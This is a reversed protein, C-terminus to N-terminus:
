LDPSGLALWGSCLLDLKTINGNDDATVFIHQEARRSENRSPVFTEFRYVVREIPNLSEREVTDIKTVTEGEDFVDQLEALVQVRDNLEIMQSTTVGRYVVDKSLQSGVRDWDHALFAHVFSEAPTETNVMEM